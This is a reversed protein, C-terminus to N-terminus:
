RAQAMVRGSALSVVLQQLLDWQRGRRAGKVVQDAEACLRLLIGWSPLSLRQLAAAVVRKRSEWVQYLVKQEPEGQAMRNAMGYLNRVENTLAWLVLVPAVGEQRLGQLIHNAQAAAGKCATDVLDYVSYRASNAVADAVERLTLTQQGQDGFLLVLKEVEQAAALLNGEVRAALLAVADRELQLGRSRLRQQLWQPLNAPKVPWIQTVAGIGDIAKFWKASQSRKDIKGLQILLVADDAPRQCYEVLAQGGEKGPGSGEIRLELVRKEAFLSMSNAAATLHDWSFDKTASLIERTAFGQERAALRLADMAEMMQLPEDGSVLYVPLLSKKAQAALQDARLQM